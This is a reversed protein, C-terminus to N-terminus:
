NLNYFAFFTILSVNIVVTCWFVFRFPQKVTKHRLFQQAILAGVWGGALAFLHLTNESIRWRHKRAASKDYAYLLFTIVTILLFYILLQSLMLNNYKILFYM